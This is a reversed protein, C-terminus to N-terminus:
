TSIDLPIINSGLKNMEEIKKNVLYAKQSIMNNFSVGKRKEFAIKRRMKDIDKPFLENKIEKLKIKEGNLLVFSKNNENTAVTVEKYLLLRKGNKFPVMKKGKFNVHSVENVVKRKELLLFNEMEEKSPLIFCNNDTIKKNYWNNLFDLVETKRKILDSPSNIKQDMFLDPLLSQASRFAREVNSKFTPETSSDLKIDLKNIANALKDQALGNRRDTRIETPKGYKVFVDKLLNLYGVNTEEKEIWVNLVFGTFADVAFYLCYKENKFWVDFCGDIEIRFGPAGSKGNYIHNKSVIKLKEILKQNTKLDNSEKIAARIKKRIAKKTKPRTGNTILNNEILLKRIHEISCSIKHIYKFYKITSLWIGKKRSDGFRKEFLERRELYLKLIQNNYEDSYKNVPIHKKRSVTGKKIFEKYWKSITKRSTGILIAIDIIKKKGIYIKHLHNNIDEINNKNKRM